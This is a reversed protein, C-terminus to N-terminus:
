ILIGNCHDIEHQIIQATFGKFTKTQKRFQEDFYCVEIRDFRTTSRVGSLSLCGEKTEYPKSSKIIEPNYMLIPDSKDKSTKPGKNPNKRGDKSTKESNNENHVVIIRKHVGIMNAAMGVCEHAHAQLTEKLDQGTPMDERTAETSPIQLIIPSTVIPCIM